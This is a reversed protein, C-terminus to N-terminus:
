DFDHFNQILAKPQTCNTSIEGNFDTMAAENTAYSKYHPNWESADPSLFVKDKDYLESPLPKRTNFYSFVENLQLPIELNIDKFSICHDNTNPDDCHMKPIDNVIVGAEMLIFPPILHHTMSKIHLANRVILIYTECTFPCDYALAADVILINEAIDLDSSFSDVNCTKGTSRFVFCDKGLVIMNTHSDLESKTTIKIDIGNTNYVTMNGDLKTILANLIHKNPTIDGKIM